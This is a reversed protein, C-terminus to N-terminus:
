GVNIAHSAIPIDTCDRITTMSSTTRVYRNLRAFQSDFTLLEEGKHSLAIDVEDDSNPSAFPRRQVPVSNLQIESM